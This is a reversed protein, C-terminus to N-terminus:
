IRGGADRSGFYFVDHMKPIEFLTKHYEPSKPLYLGEESSEVNTWVLGASTENGEPEDEAYVPVSGFLSFVMALVLVFVSSRKGWKKKM